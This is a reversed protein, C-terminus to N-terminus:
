EELGAAKASQTYGRMASQWNSKAKFAERTADFILGDRTRASLYWWLTIWQADLLSQVSQPLGPRTQLWTLKAEESPYCPLDGSAALIMAAERGTLFKLLQWAGDPDPSRNSMALTWAHVFLLPRGGPLNPIPAIGQEFPTTQGTRDGVLYTITMAAKGTGFLDEPPQGSGDWNRPPAMSRDSFIMESFFLLADGLAAATPRNFPPGGAQKVWGSVPVAPIDTAFGWTQSGGDQRTLRKAIDRFEDWTWGAEPIAVGAARAMERNYVIAMPYVAYPLERIKGQDSAAALFWDLSATPVGATALYPSLDAMVGEALAKGLLGSGSQMLDVDGRSMAEAIVSQDADLKIQEVRFAPYRDQFAAILADLNPDGNWGRLVGLKITAPAGSAAESRGTAKLPPPKGGSCGTAVVITLMFLAITRRM